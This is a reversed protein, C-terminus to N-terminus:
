ERNWLYREVDERTPIGDRGGMRTCKIAAAASAFRIADPVSRGSLYAYLFAGHFVDGAGTTDVAKVPFAPFHRIEGDILALVGREGATSILVRPHYARDIERLAEARDAIGTLRTPYTENAILIDTMAALRENRAMEKAMSSADLSILLGCQKGLAAAALANASETNDLHLAACSRLLAEDQADFVLPPFPAHYSFFTRTGAKESVAVNTFHQRIEPHHRCRSVDVGEEDLGRCLAEGEAGGFDGIYAAGGGLRAVAVLAQSATGGPHDEIRLIHRSGNEPPYEECVAIHDWCIHGVAAVRVRTNEERNM